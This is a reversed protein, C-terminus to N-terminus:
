AVRGKCKQNKPELELIKLHCFDMFSAVHVQRGKNRAEVIEKINRVQTLQWSPINELIEWYKEM